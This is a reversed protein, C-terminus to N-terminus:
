KWMNYLLDIKESLKELSEAMRSLVNPIPQVNPVKRSNIRRNHYTRKFENIDKIRFKAHFKKAGEPKQNAPKIVGRQVMKSLTSSSINLKEAAQKTTLLM